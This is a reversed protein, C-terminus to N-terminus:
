IFVLALFSRPFHSRILLAEDAVCFSKWIASRSLSAPQGWFNRDTDQSMNTALKCDRVDLFSIEPPGPPSPFHGVCVRTLADSLQAIVVSTFPDRNPLPPQPITGENGRLCVSLFALLSLLWQSHDRDKPKGGATPDRYHQRLAQWELRHSMFFRYSQQKQLHFLNYISTLRKVGHMRYPRYSGISSLFVANTNFKASAKSAIQAAYTGNGLGSLFSSPNPNLWCTWRNQGTARGRRKRLREDSLSAILQLCVADLNPAGCTWGAGWVCEGTPIFHCITLGKPVPETVVPHSRIRLSLPICLHWM